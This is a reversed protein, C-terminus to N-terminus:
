LLSGAEAAQARFFGMAQEWAQSLSQVANPRRHYAKWHPISVANPPDIQDVSVGNQACQLHLHLGAHLHSELRAILAWHGGFEVALWAKYNPKDQRLRVLLKYNETESRLEAARWHWAPGLPEKEKFLPFYRKPVPGRSWDTASVMRKRDRLHFM